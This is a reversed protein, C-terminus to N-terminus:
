RARQTQEPERCCSDYQDKVSNWFAGASEAKLLEQYVFEPVNFYRYTEGERFEVDLTRNQEEYTVAAIATSDLPVRKM